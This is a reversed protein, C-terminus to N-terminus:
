QAYFENQILKPNTEIERVYIPWYHSNRKPDKYKAILSQQKEPSASNIALNILYQINTGDYNGRKAHRLVDYWRKGEYSFERARENLIAKELSKGDIIGTFTYESTNVANRVSRVEEMAAIANKYYTQATENHTNLGIQTLAEAKMLLVDAYKYMIWPATYNTSTRVVGFRSTGIYKWLLGARYSCGNGRIDAASSYNYEPEPFITGEVVTSKPRLTYTSAGLLSYFPNTKLTTFPIEFISEISNGNVYSNIFMQDADSENPVTVTDVVVGGSTIEVIQKELPIMGYKGSNIIEQCLANCAAYEEKWLYIDALLTKAAWATIRNKNKETTNYSIPANASAIKLDHILTDLIVDGNTKPLYFDQDDSVYGDLALPVDRFARVLQFYMMARITLVEAEYEKLQKETLTADLKRVGPAYKLVINCNNIVTYFSSWDVTKNDPSIEGDFIQNYNYNIGPGNELMDARLEGWLFMKEVPGNMLSAYCGTVASAVHEKTKWYEQVTVGDEPELNLWDGCSSLLAAVMILIHLQIYKKMHVKM